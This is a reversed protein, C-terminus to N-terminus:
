AHTIEHNRYIWTPIKQNTPQNTPKYPVLLAGSPQESLHVLSIIQQSDIVTQNKLKYIWVRLTHYDPSNSLYEKNKYGYMGYDGHEVRFVSM